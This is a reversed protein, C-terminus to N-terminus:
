LPARRRDIVAQKRRRAHSTPRRRDFEIWADGWRKVAERRRIAKKCKPSQPPARLRGAVRMMPRPRAQRPVAALTAKLRRSRDLLAARWHQVRLWSERYIENQKGGLIAAWGLAVRQQIGLELFGSCIKPRKLAGCRKGATPNRKSDAGSRRTDAQWRADPSSSGWARSASSSASLSPKGIQLGAHRRDGSKQGNPWGTM